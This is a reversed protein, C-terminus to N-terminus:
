KKFAYSLTGKSGGTQESSKRGGGQVTAAAKARRMEAQQLYPFFSPLNLLAVDSLPSWLM